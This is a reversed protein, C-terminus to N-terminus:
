QSRQANLAVIEPHHNLFADIEQFPANSAAPYQRLLTEFFALDEPYDLTWRRDALNPGPQTLYCRKLDPHERLWPTVHERERPASAERAAQALRVASFIECDLGHPYTRPEINNAYDAGQDRYLAILADVVGPDILPCDSTIRVVHDAGFRVVAEHYRALVDDTSGQYAGIHQSACIALIEEARDEWTTACIIQDANKVRHLRDIVHTLVPKGALLKVAKGPLRSSGIRAQIVILVKGTM